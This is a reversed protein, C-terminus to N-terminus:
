SGNRTHNRYLTMSSSDRKTHYQGHTLGAVVADIVVCVARAAVSATCLLRSSVNVGPVEYSFAFASCTAAVAADSASQVAGLLNFLGQILFANSDWRKIVLGSAVSLIAVTFIIYPYTHM